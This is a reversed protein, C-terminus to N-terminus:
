LDAEFLRERIKIAPNGRYIGCPELDKYAVSNVSLIANAGVTVGQCVVSKAGLWSGEELRIPKLILNFSSRKYNHSGTLLFAGQSVCVHDEIIVSALNDIWVDEGIWCNNGVKLFWPYKINIGPKLVIGKGLKAGFLRLLFRKPRQFPLWYSKFFLHNTVYWLLVKIAPGPNYDLNSYSSLDTKSTMENM